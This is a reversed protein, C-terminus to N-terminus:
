QNSPPFFYFIADKPHALVTEQFNTRKGVKKLLHTFRMKRTRYAYLLFQNVKKNNEEKQNQRVFLCFIPKPTNPYGSITKGACFFMIRFFEYQPHSFSFSQSQITGSILKIKQTPVLQHSQIHLQRQTVHNQGESEM